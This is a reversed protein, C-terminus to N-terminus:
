LLSKFYKDKHYSSRQYAHTSPSHRLQVVNLMSYTTVTRLQYRRTTYGSTQIEIQLKPNCLM